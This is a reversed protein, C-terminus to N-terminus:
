RRGRIFSESGDDWGSQMGNLPMAGKIHGSRGIIGGPHIVNFIVMVGVMLVGDFVYMYVENSMLTSEHGGAFEAIRFVSRALILASAGYLAYMYKQWNGRMSASTPSAGMRRHFKFSTVVFFGFFGIQVLLGVIVVIKGTDQTAAKALMSGGGAQLLFAIVDGGVFIKTLREARIPAMSEGSTFHILRGLIMYISAAFLSPPLLLLLTQAIFVGQSDMNYHAFIRAIYGWWEFCGGVILPIFYFTRKKFTQLCHWATTALFLFIFIAAAVISPDYQYFSFAKPPVASASSVSSQTPTAVASTSM